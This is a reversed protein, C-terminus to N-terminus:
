IVEAAAARFLDDVQADTLGFRAGIGSLLAGARSFVNSQEWAQWAIDADMRRPDSEPLAAAADRAERLLRDTRTFLSTDPADPLFTRRLVARAQWNTVEAPVPGRGSADGPGPTQEAGPGPPLAAAAEAMGEPADMEVGDMLVTPRRAM